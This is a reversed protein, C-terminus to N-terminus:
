ALPLEGSRIGITAINEVAKVYSATEHLKIISDPNPRGRMRALRIVSIAPIDWRLEALLKDAGTPNNCVLVMDCGANLANEARQLMSGAVAAGEMSLDDSFICGEFGLERRLIRKLWVESFGAPHTDVRPYIVHAPMIGTLGFDIIKRFSILDNMEIEAYPREDVPMEFHSDAQIYGHGPFHKGVAAMGASKLGSILSRALDIIAQPSGHFARDGIVCSQGYDMDLVPTFSFDVGAARLESALVYGMQQALHRAQGPHEDWIRGLERMPALRTFEERFRQVRGGEHDVAILLPPARLGHIETTLETLQRLSSYNRTFLIVGGVLPHRLKKRDGATLQTGQIDLMIPGLSM